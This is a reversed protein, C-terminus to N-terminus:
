AEDIRNQCYANFEDCGVEYEDDEEDDTYVQILKNNKFDITLIDDKLVVRNLENWNIKKGLLGNEQIFNRSFGLERKQMITKEVLGCIILLIGIIFPLSSAIILGLGGVILIPKFLLNKKKRKEFWNSIMLSLTIALTIYLLTPNISTYISFGLLLLILVSLLWGTKEISEKHDNRLVVIYDHVVSTVKTKADM